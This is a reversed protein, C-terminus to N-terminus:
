RFYHGILCGIGQSIIGLTARPINIILHDSFHIEIDYTSTLKGSESATNVRAIGTPQLNLASVVEQTIVTGSAGTDWIGSTSFRRISEKVPSIEIPTIIVPLLGKGKLTFSHITTDEHKDQM